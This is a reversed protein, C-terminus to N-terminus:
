GEADRESEQQHRTRYEGPTMHTMSKFRKSFSSLSFYGVRQIIASIPLDTSALLEKAKEVRLNTLYEIPLVGIQASFFRTLSSNSVGLEAALLNLSFDPNAFEAHIRQLVLDIDLRANGITLCQEILQELNDIFSHADELYNIQFLEMVLNVSVIPQVPREAQRLAELTTTHTDFCVRRINNIPLISSAIMSHVSAIAAHVASMDGDHLANSLEVSHGSTLQYHQDMKLPSDQIDEYLTCRQGTLHCFDLATYAEFYSDSIERFDGAIHGLGMLLSAQLAKGLTETAQSLTHKDLDQGEAFSLLWPTRRLTGVSLRTLTAYPSLTEVLLTSAADAQALSIDLFTALIAYRTGSAPLGLLVARQEFVEPDSLNRNIVDMWLKQVLIEHQDEMENSLHLVRSLLDDIAQHITGLENQRASHRPKKAGMEGADPLADKGLPLTQVYEQAIEYINYIPTYNAHLFYVMILIGAFLLLLLLLLYPSLSRIVTNTVRQTNTIVIASWDATNSHAYQLLYQTNDVRLGSEGQLVAQMFAPEELIASADGTQAVVQGAQNVLLVATNYDNTTPFRIFEALTSPLIEVTSLLTVVGGYRYVPMSYLIVNQTPQTGLQRKHVMFRGFNDPQMVTDLYPAGDIKLYQMASDERSYFQLLLFASRAYVGRQDKEYLYINNILDNANCYANIVDYMVTPYYEFQQVSKYIQSILPNAAMLGNISAASSLQTDLRRIANDIGAQQNDKIQTISNNYQSIGYMSGWVVLPVFFFLVSTLLLRNFYHGRTKAGIGRLTM